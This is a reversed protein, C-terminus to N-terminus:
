ADNKNESFLIRFDAMEGDMFTIYFRSEDAKYEVMKVRPDEQFNRIINEPSLDIESLARMEQLTLIDALSIVEKSM